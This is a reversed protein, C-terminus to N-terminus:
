SRNKEQIERRVENDHRIAVIIGVALSVFWEATYLIREFADPVWIGTILYYLYRQALPTGLVLGLAILAAAFKEPSSPRMRDHYQGWLGLLVAPFVAMVCILVRAILIHDPM